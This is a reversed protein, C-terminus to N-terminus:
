INMPGVHYNIQCSGKMMRRKEMGFVQLNFNLKTKKKVETMMLGTGNHMTGLLM